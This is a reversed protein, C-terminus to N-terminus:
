LATAPVLPEVAPQTAESEAALGGDDDFHLVEERYFPPQNPTEIGLRVQGCLIELITVRVNGDIVLGENVSRSIIRMDFVETFRQLFSLELFSDCLAAPMRVEADCCLLRGVHRFFDKDSLTRPVKVSRVVEVDDALLGVVEERNKIQKAKKSFSRM